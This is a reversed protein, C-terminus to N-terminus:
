INALGTINFLHLTSTQSPLAKMQNLPSVAKMALLYVKPSQNNYKPFIQQDKIKRQKPPRQKREKEKLQHDPTKYINQLVM